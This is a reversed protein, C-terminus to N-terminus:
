RLNLETLEEAVIQATADDRPPLRTPAMAPPALLTPDIDPPRPISTPESASPEPPPYSSPNTQAAYSYL